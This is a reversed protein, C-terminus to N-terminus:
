AGRDVSPERAAGDQVGKRWPAPPLGTMRRFARSFSSESEHVVDVAIQALTTGGASILSAARRMRWNALHTMPPMGLLAAFREALVRRSLGAERALDALTWHRACEGHLVRLARGVSPARLGALWGEADTPMSAAQRRIVEMFILESLKTLM